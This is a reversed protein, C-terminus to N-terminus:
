HHSRLNGPFASRRNESSRLMTGPPSPVATFFANAGSPLRRSAWTDGGDGSWVVASHVTGSAAAHTTISWMLNQRYEQLGDSSPDRHPISRIPRCATDPDVALDAGDSRM